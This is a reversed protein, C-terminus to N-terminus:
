RSQGRQSSVKGEYEKVLDIIMGIEAKLLNINFQYVNPEYLCPEMKALVTRIYHQTIIRAYRAAFERLNENPGDTSMAVEKINKRRPFRVGSVV